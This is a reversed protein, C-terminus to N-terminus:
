TTAFTDILKIVRRCFLDFKGFIADETLGDMRKSSPTAVLSEKTLRYDEQYAENLKLCDELRAILTNVDKTWLQRSSNSDSAGPSAIIYEKCTAIITHTIKIFLDSMREPSNFYRAITHIMKISNMLAPLADIIELPTAVYLPEVFKTLTSLYKVNDKAENAAETLATDVSKWRRVLAFTSGARSADAAAAAASSAAGATTPAKGGVVASLISIVIRHHRQKLQEVISTLAQMRSRWYAIIGRPGATHPVADALAPLTNSLERDGLVREISDCWSEMLAECHRLLDPQLRTPRALNAAAAEWDYGAVDPTSLEVGGELSERAEAMETSFVALSSKFSSSASADAKGWESDERRTLAPQFVVSVQAELAQLVDAGVEGVLLDPSSAVDMDIPKGATSVRLFFLAKGRLRDEEQAHGRRAL